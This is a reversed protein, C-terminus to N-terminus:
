VKILFESEGFPEWVTPINRRTLNSLMARAGEPNVSQIIIRKPLKDDDLECIRLSAHQGNFERTKGWGDVYTDAEGILDGLDHDLHILDWPSYDLLLQLFETYTYASRVESGDYAKKFFEHRFKDDDLILIKM